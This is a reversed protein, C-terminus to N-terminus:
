NITASPTSIEGSGSSENYLSKFFNIIPQDGNLCEGKPTILLPVGAKEAPIKCSASKEIFLKANDQNTSIERKDLSIKDKGDWSELFAAVNKCHPCTESWFYLLANPNSNQPSTSTSSSSKSLLLFYGGILLLAIVVIFIPLKKM